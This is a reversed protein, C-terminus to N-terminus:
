KRSGDTHPDETPHQTQSQTEFVQAMEPRGQELSFIPDQIIVFYISPAVLARAQLMHHAAMKFDGAKINRAAAAVLAELPPNAQAMASDIQAGIGDQVELDAEIECLWYKLRYFSSSADFENRLLASRFRSAAERSKGEQHLCEGWFYYIDSRSPDAAVAAAFYDEAADYDRSMTFLLGLRFSAEASDPERNALARFTGQAANLDRQYMETTGVAVDISHWEPHTAKLALFLQKAEAYKGANQAIYAADLSDDEAPKLRTAATRQLTNGVSGGVGHTEPRRDALRFLSHDILIGGILCGLCLFVLTRHPRRSAAPTADGSGRLMQTTTLLRAPSKIAKKGKAVGSPPSSADSSELVSEGYGADVADTEDLSPPLLHCSKSPDLIRPTLAPSSLLFKPLYKSFTGLFYQFPVPRFGAALIAEDIGDAVLNIESSAAGVADGRRAVPTFKRQKSSMTMLVITLLFRAWVIETPTSQNEKLFTSIRSHPAPPRKLESQKEFDLPSHHSLVSHLRQRNYFIEVYWFIKSRAGARM